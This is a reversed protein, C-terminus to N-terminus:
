SQEALRQARRERNAKNARRTVMAKLVARRRKTMERAQEPTYLDTKGDINTHDYWEDHSGDYDRFALVGDERRYSGIKHLDASTFM